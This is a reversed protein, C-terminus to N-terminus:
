VFTYYKRDGETPVKKITARFPIKKIDRARKLQKLLIESGTLFLKSKENKERFKVIAFEGDKFQSPRLTFDEIIIERDLIEDINVVELDPFAQESPFLDSFKPIEEEVM